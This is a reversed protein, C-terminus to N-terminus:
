KSKIFLNPFQDKPIDNEDWLLIDSDNYDPTYMNPELEFHGSASFSPFCLYYPGKWIALDANYIYVDYTGRGDIIYLNNSNNGWTVTLRHKGSHWGSGMYGDTHFVINNDKNMVSVIECLRTLDKTIVYKYEGDFCYCGFDAPPLLYPFDHGIM